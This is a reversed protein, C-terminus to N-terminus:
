DDDRPRDHVDEEVPEYAAAFIDPKCSYFHIGDPEPIVYDGVELDVTQNDHITHVHPKNNVSVFCSTSNCMGKVLKGYEIYQVAEIVVPKKRYKAM